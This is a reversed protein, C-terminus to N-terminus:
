SGGGALILRALRQLPDDDPPDPLDPGALVTWIGAHQDLLDALALGVLPDVTAIWAMDGDPSYDGRPYCDGAPAAISGGFVDEGVTYVMGCGMHEKGPGSGTHEWPGPTADQARQRLLVAAAKLEEAPSM